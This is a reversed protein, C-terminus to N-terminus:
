SSRADRMVPAARMKSIVNIALLLCDRARSSSKSRIHGAAYRSIRKMVASM